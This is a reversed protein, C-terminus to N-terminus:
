EALRISALVPITAAQPVALTARVSGEALELCAGEVLEPCAKGAIKRSAARLRAPLAREVWAIQIRLLGSAYRRM